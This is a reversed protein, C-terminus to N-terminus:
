YTGRVLFTYVSTLYVFERQMIQPFGQHLYSIDLKRMAQCLSQTDSPAM